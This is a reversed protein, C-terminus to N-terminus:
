MKILAASFTMGAGATAMIIIDGGKIANQKYYRDFTIPVTAVSTNACDAISTMIKDKPIFLREAVAETIRQNAQHLLLWQVDQSQMNNDLLINNISEVFGEVANKFVLQGQMHLGFKTEKDVSLSIFEELKVLTPNNYLDPNYLGYLADCLQPKTSLKIDIISSYERLNDKELIMAAAGDGFLVCSNRDEWNLIRSMRESAVVAIRNIDQSLLIKQAVYLSYVFGSCITSIDFAFGKTMNIAKQVRVATTPFIYDPTTTTVILADLDNPELKDQELAQKLAKTAMYTTTEDGNAIHRQKIGTRTTIWEDTTDVIKSLESNSLVMKPLYSGTSAIKIKM